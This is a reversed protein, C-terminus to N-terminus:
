QSVKFNFAINIRERNSLNPEVEHPMWSPFLILDGDKPAFLFDRTFPSTKCCDGLLNAPNPFRLDGTDTGQLYYVCSFEDEKHTHFTNRSGPENVNAWWSFDFKTSIPLQQFVSDELQYFDIAEHLLVNLQDFLWSINACPNNIRFCGPNSFSMATSTHQKEKIQQVIDKRQAETGIASCVLIDSRFLTKKLIM